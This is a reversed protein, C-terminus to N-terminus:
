EEDLDETSDPEQATVGDMCDFFEEVSREQDPMLQQSKCWTAYIEDRQELSMGRYQWWQPLTM